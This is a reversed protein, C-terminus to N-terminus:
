LWVGPVAGGSTTEAMGWPLELTTLREIRINGASSSVVDPPATGPTQSYAPVIFTLVIITTLSM